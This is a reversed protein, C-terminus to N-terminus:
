EFYWVLSFERAIKRLASARDRAIGTLSCLEDLSSKRVMSLCSIGMAFLQQLEKASVQKSKKLKRYFTILNAIAIANGRMALKFTEHVPWYAEELSALEAETVRASKGKTIEQLVVQLSRLKRAQLALSVQQTKKVLPAVILLMVEILDKNAIGLHLAKLYRSLPNLQNRCLELYTAQMQRTGHPARGKFRKGSKPKKELEDVLGSVVEELSSELDFLEQSKVAQKM